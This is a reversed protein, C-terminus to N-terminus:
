KMAEILQNIDELSLGYHRYELYTLFADVVRKEDIGVPLFLSGYKDSETRWFKKALNLSIDINLNDWIIDKILVNM